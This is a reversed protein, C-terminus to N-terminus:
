KGLEVSRDRAAKLGKKITEIFGDELFSNIARETTGGPSTVKKRLIEASEGEELLKASGLMTQTILTKSEEASLGMEVGAEVVAEALLFFYAPGSGSIATVADIHKEDLLMVKGLKSFIDTAKEKNDDDANQSFSIVSMAQGILAPTNPMVRAIPSESKILTRIKAISTGALISIVLTNEGIRVSELAKEIMQPKVALIVINLNFLTNANDLTKIGDKKLYEIIEESKEFVSIKEKPFGNNLLGRLIAQGMNGCGLFGITNNNLSM